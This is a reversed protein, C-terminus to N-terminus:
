LARKGAADVSITNVRGGHSMPVARRVRHAWDWIEVRGSASGTLLDADDKGFALATIDAARTVRECRPHPSMWDRWVHVGTPTAAAVYKSSRSVALAGIHADDIPVPSSPLRLLGRAGDPTYVAISG